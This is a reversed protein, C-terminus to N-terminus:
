ARPRIELLEKSKPAYHFEVEEKENVKEWLEKEIKYRVNEIILSYEIYSKMGTYLRSKKGTFSFGVSSGAAYDEKSEKRTIIKRVVEKENNKLDIWCKRNVLWVILFSFLFGLIFFSEYGSEPKDLIYIIFLALVPIFIFM